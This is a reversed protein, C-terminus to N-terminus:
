VWFLLNVVVFYGWLILRCSSCCVNNVEGTVVKTQSVNVNSKLLACQCQITLFTFFFPVFGCVRTFSAFCVKNTNQIHGSWIYIKSHVSLVSPQSPHGKEKCSMQLVIEETQTDLLFTSEEQNQIGLGERLQASCLDGDIDWEPGVTHKVVHALRGGNPSISGAVLWKIQSFIETM